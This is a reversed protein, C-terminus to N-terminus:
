ELDADGGNVGQIAEEFQISIPSPQDSSVYPVELGQWLSQFHNHLSTFVDAQRLAYAIMGERLAVSFQDPKLMKLLAKHSWYSSKWKFFELTWWMEEKLLEVEEQWRQSRAYSKSWELQYALVPLTLRQDVVFM